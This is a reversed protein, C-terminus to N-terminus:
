KRYFVISFRDNLHDPNITNNSHRLDVSNFILLSKNNKMEFAINLDPLALISSKFQKNDSFCCLASYKFKNRSDKHIASRLGRNFIANNYFCNFFGDKLNHNPYLCFYHRLEKEINKIIPKIYRTYEKEYKKFFVSDSKVVRSNVPNCWEFKNNEDKKTRSKSKNFTKVNKYLEKYRGKLKDPNIVGAIDGRTQSENKHKKLLNFFNNDLIFKKNDSFFDNIYIVETMGNVEIIYNKNSDYINNINIYDANKYENEIYDIELIEFLVM